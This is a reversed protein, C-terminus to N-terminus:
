LKNSDAFYSQKAKYLILNKTKDTEHKLIFVEHILKILTRNIYFKFIWRYQM